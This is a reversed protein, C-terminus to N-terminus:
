ITQHFPFIEERGQSMDHISLFHEPQSDTPKTYDLSFTSLTFNKTDPIFSHSAIRQVLSLHAQSSSDRSKNRKFGQTKLNKDIDGYDVISRQLGIKMKYRASDLRVTIQNSM